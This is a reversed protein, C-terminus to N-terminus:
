LDESDFTVRKGSCRTFAAFGIESSVGLPLIRSASLVSICRASVGERLKGSSFCVSLMRPAVTRDLLCAHLKRNSILLHSRSLAPPMKKRSMYETASPRLKEYMALGVQALSLVFLLGIRLFRRFTFTCCCRSSGGVGHSSYITLSSRRKGTWTAGQYSGVICGTFMFFSMESTRVTSSKGSGNKRGTRRRGAGETCASATLQNNRPLVVRFTLSCPTLFQLSARGRPALPLRTTGLRPVLERQKGLGRCFQLLKPLSHSRVAPNHRSSSCTNAPDVRHRAVM